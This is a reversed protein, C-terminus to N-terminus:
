RSGVESTESAPLMVRAAPDVKFILRCAPLDPLYARKLELRFQVALWGEDLRKAAALVKHDGCLLALTWGTRITTFQAGCDSQPAAMAACRGAM